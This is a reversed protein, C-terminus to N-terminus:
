RVRSIDEVPRADVGVAGDSARLFAKTVQFGCTQCIWRGPPGATEGQLAPAPPVTLTVPQKLDYRRMPKSWQHEAIDAMTPATEGATAPPVAPKEFAVKGDRIVVNAVVDVDDPMAPPVPVAALAAIADALLQSVRRDRQCYPCGLQTDHLNNVCGAVNWDVVAQEAKLREVLVTHPDAPATWLQAKYPVLPNGDVIADIDDALRPFDERCSKAYAKLAPIAHTDHTMDLVFYNCQDHKKGPGDNGDTRRVNFKNYIGRVVDGM